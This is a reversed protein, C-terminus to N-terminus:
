VSIAVVDGGVSLIMMESLIRAQTAVGSAM